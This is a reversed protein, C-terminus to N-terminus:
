KTQRLGVTPYRIFFRTKTNTQLKNHLSLSSNRGILWYM